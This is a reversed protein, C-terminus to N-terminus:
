LYPQGEQPGGDIWLVIQNSFIVSLLVIPLAIAQWGVFHKVTVNLSTLFPLCCGLVLWCTLFLVYLGLPVTKM